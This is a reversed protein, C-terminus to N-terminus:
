DRPGENEGREEVDSRPGQNRLWDVATDLEVVEGIYRQIDELSAEHLHPRNSSV